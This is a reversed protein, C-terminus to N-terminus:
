EAFELAWEVMDTIMATVNSTRPIEHGGQHSYCRRNKSECLGALQLSAGLRPDKAGYVHVTPIQIKFPGQFEDRVEEESRGQMFSDGKWREAGQSMISSVDAQKTLADVSAEDRALAEQTINFGLAELVRLSSAGCIFIGAKFPPPQDPSEKQHLLLLSSAVISGQSFSMVVDYPGKKAIYEKLWDVAKLVAELTAKEWFGYYPPQYFMDVGPAATTENPGNVFDFQVNGISLQSRINSTQSEFVKASTGKGHLCLVRM